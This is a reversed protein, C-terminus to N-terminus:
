DIISNTVCQMNSSCASGLFHDFIETDDAYKFVDGQILGAPISLDNIMLLFLWPGFKTGQPVGACVPEWKPFCISNLKVRQFRCYLFDLIWKLVLPRVCIGQLKEYLINHDIMDFAIRYDLLLARVSSDSKDLVESSRHILSILAFTTCSRPVFGFQNFDICTLLM